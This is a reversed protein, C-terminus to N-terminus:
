SEQLQRVALVSPWEDLQHFVAENCKKVIKLAALTQYM